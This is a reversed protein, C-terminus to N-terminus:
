AQWAFKDLQLIPVNLVWVFVARTLVFALMPLPLLATAPAAAILGL